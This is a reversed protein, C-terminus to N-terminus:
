QDVIALALRTGDVVVKGQERFNVTIKGGINSQVQGTGWDPQAPNRVLMGPELIANIGIM